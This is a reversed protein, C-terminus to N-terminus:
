NALYNIWKNNLKYIILGLSGTLFLTLFFQPTQTIQVNFAKPFFWRLFSIFLPHAYYTFNALVRSKKSLAQYKPLPNRLLVLLSSIVLLYLGFTLVINDAIGAAEVAIIEALWIIAAAILLLYMKKNSIRREAKEQVRFVLYGSVFFPFGMLLVRRIIEFHASTFLIKLVPIQVGIKFYACGLVGIGYLIISIPILLKRCKLKFLLTTLLVSFILAPFFWFHYHSGTIVFNYVSGALFSKVNAYGGQVFDILYYICSWIFYTLLIRYIYPRTTNYNKDSKESYFYGAVAFFYPVGIRPLVQSFVFEASAGAEAFPHTHIAVVMIACIYRFIDVSCIRENSTSLLIM